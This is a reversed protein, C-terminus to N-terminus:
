PGGGVNCVIRVIARTTACVGAGAIPVAADLSVASAMATTEAARAAPHPVPARCLWGAALPAAPKPQSFGAGRWRPPPRSADRAAGGDGVRRSPSPDMSIRARGGDGQETGPVLYDAVEVERWTLTRLRDGIEGVESDIVVAVFAVAGYSRQRGRRIAAEVASM